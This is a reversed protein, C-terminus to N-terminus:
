LQHLEERGNSHFYTEKPVEFVQAILVGVYRRAEDGRM